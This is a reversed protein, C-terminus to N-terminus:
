KVVINVIRGKVVIFKVVEKGELLDAFNEYVYDKVQDDTATSSIDFKARVKGNLQLGMNVTSQTLASEDVIPFDQNFISYPQGLTEWLEECVHPAFPSLLMLLKKVAEKAFVSDAKGDTYKYLANVLEMIRAIATNFSFQPIDASVQKITYHLRYNVAEDVVGTGGELSSVREVLREVRELFKHISKIGDDNWPGGEIYNFGFALYLRLTDAGYTSIHKDPSVVNGRSKSMKEGDPGLITGQHVLSTFPEDFSLYGMDAFAKTFFRAYLLHMCAHEAGGIYKDVPLISDVIEKSWAENENKNDPYRM